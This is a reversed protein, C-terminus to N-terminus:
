KKSRKLWPNTNMIMEYKEIMARHNWMAELFKARGYVECKYLHYLPFAIILFILVAIFKM